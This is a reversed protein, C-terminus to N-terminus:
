AAKKIQLKRPKLVAEAKKPILVTLVGNKFTAEADDARATEPLPIQRFFSGYSSERRIYNKDKEEKEEEKEGKIILYDKTISIDVCEPDIGPM